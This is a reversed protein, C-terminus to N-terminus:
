DQRDMRAAILLPVVACLQSATALV